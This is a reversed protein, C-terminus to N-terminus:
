GHQVAINKWDQPLVRQCGLDTHQHPYNSWLLNCFHKKEHPLVLTPERTNHSFYIIKAHQTLLMGVTREAGPSYLVGQMRWWPKLAGASYQGHRQCSDCVIRM